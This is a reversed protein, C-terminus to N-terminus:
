TTRLPELRNAVQDHGWRRLRHRLGTRLRRQTRDLARVRVGAGARRARGGDTAGEGSRVTARPGDFSSGHRGPQQVVAERARAALQVAPDSSAPAAARAHAHGAGAFRTWAGLIVRREKTDLPNRFPSCVAQWVASKVGPARRSASRAGPLRPPRRGLARLDDVAGRRARGAGVETLLDCMRRFSHQFAPWHELDLEQRLKEALKKAQTGWAGDAVIENWAELWHLAPGMILPLSTGILLHEVDGRAHEEIWEWEEPDVMSRNGPDLVRGARSDIMVVRAPGIDRCFSWRTGEVEEDARSARVDRLMERRTTSRHAAHEYISPTTASPRRCTGSTSTSSTARSPPRRHAPAVLGEPADRHGVRDVHELRRPRRPRRLDDRQPGDLAALPDGARGLVRMYLECTTTTPRRGRRRRRAADEVHPHVEDAYVQDGLLLLAHPWEEPAQHACGCRWAACRTSRAGTRTSTRACRTRRSTRRPSAAPASSSGDGADTARTRACSAPRSSATPSPGCSRATSRSRTRRRPTPAAARHRPRARLPPGRRHVDARAGTAGAPRVEVTCPADTQVWITAEDTARTGCCRGSSSSDRRPPSTTTAGSATSRRASPRPGAPATPPPSSTAGPRAQRRPRRGGDPQDVGGDADRRPRQRGLAAGRHRRRPGDQGLEGAAVPDDQGARAPLGRHAQPEGRALDRRDRAHPRAADPVPHLEAARVRHLRRHPGAADRVVRM